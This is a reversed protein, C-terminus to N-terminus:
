INLDDLPSKIKELHKTSVYTYIETTKSSTHGLLEQIYRIDTGAELLHTAFSHRLWHLSPKSRIGGKRCADRLISRLSSGTYEGGYQGEFLYVKPQYQKYYTRLLNLLKDSLMTTRDKAGKGRRIYILKREGDIDTVKLNILEGARLGAAYLLSIMTKHKINECHNIITEVEKKNLVKPLANDKQPRQVTSAMDKECRKLINRYYYMVANIMQHTTSVSHKNHTAIKIVYDNIEKGTANQYDIHHLHCFYLYTFFCSYYNKITNMSYNEAKLHKLYEQPPLMTTNYSQNWFLSQVYLSQLKLSSPLVLFAKGKIASLLKVLLEESRDMSFASLRRHYSIYPLSLLIAKSNIISDTNLFYCPKDNLLGAQLTLRITIQFKPISIPLLGGSTKKGITQQIHTKLLHYKNIQLKGKSAIELYDLAEQSADSCIRKQKKDFCFMPQALMWKFLAPNKSFSYSYGEGGKYSCEKIYITIPKVSKKIPSNKIM